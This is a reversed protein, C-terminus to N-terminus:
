SREARKRVPGFPLAQQRLLEHYESMTIIRLGVMPSLSLLHRDNTVRDDAGCGLAAQLTPSDRPDQPVDVM